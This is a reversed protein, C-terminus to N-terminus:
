GSAWPRRDTTMGGAYTRLHRTARGRETRSSPVLSFSRREALRDRLGQSAPSGAPPDGGVRVLAYGNARFGYPPSGYAYGGKESKRKRGSRLRLAIMSREYQSVAGLVQRVLTRSPDDPDDPLYGAEAASTSFLEGGM